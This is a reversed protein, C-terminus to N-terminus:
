SDNKTNQSIKINTCFALILNFFGIAISAITRTYLRMQVHESRTKFSKLPYQCASFRRSSRLYRPKILKKISVVMIYIIYQKSRMFIRNIRTADM